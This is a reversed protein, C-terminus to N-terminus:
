ETFVEYAPERLIIDSLESCEFTIQLNYRNKLQKLLNKANQDIWKKLSSRINIKVIHHGTQVHFRHIERLLDYAETEISKVQGRGDCMPCPTLLKRELSESTRKRTMQVLGFESVRLVNTRARDSKLEEILIAYIEERDTIESMDIFDIIIIGGINRVKLQEVVKKAAEINTRKITQRADAKGVFRGTNVDFSTLAETQEIILYGGSPLDVRVGLAHAIDIEIGYVDFIPNKEHHFHLKESSGPITVKLFDKLSNYSDYDDIIIENVENTYLDRTVKHIVDLDKHVLSPARCNSISKKLKKSKKLLTDLDKKIEKKDIGVAATRIIAGTDKPLLNELINKLRERENEDEIRRSIGLHCINPMFVIYRGPLTLFMTVRPGKTGLPEKSVQVIVEQGDRLVKEIPKKQDPTSPEDDDTKHYRILDVEPDLVDGGFLFAAKVFGIDIFASNMGPLVRTVVGKFINGVIGLEKQREVFIESLNGEELLAIRTEGLNANIVLQKETM